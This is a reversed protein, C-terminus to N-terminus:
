LTKREMLLVLIGLIATEIVLMQGAMDIPSQLLFRDVSDVTFVINNSIGYFVLFLTIAVSGFAGVAYLFVEKSSNM